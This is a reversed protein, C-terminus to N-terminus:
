IVWTLKYLTWWSFLGFAYGLGQDVFVRENQTLFRLRCEDGEGKTKAKKKQNVECLVTLTAFTVPGRRIYIFTMWNFYLISSFRWSSTVFVFRRWWQWNLTESLLPECPLQFLAFVQLDERIWYAQMKIQRMELTCLQHLIVERHRGQHSLQLSVVYLLHSAGLFVPFIQVGWLLFDPKSTIKTPRRFSHQSIGCIHTFLLESCWFALLFQIYSFVWVFLNM